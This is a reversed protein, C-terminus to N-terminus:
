ASASFPQAETGGRALVSEVAAGCRGTAARLLEALVEVNRERDFYRRVYRQGEAALRERTVPDRLLEAIIGALEVPRGPAVLRGTSGEIVLERVGGVDSAVVPVRSALAEVLVNPIVDRKGFRQVVVSALVFVTAEAMMEALREQTVPGVFEVRDSLGLQRALAEFDGRQPGEGVIRCEFVLGAETLQRCAQLLIHIGKYRELRGCTLILPVPRPPRSRHAFRQLDTGHYNVVLKHREAGFTHELYTANTAACTVTFRATRLKERLLYQMMYVDYAHATFSFELGYLRHVVYAVTTPYSAWHAHVHGVGDRALVRGLDVAKWALVLSKLLYLVANTNYFGLLQERLTLQEPESEQGLLQRDRWWERVLGVVTQWYRAPRRLLAIGNSWWLRPHLAWPLYTVEPMLAAAEPQQADDAAPRKLSYLRIPVGRERLALVEWLVFTQHLVPFAPFLYGVAPM